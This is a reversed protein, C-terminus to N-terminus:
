QLARVDLTGSLRIAQTMNYSTDGPQLRNLFWLGLQALSLPLDQDRSAPEIFTRSSRVIAAAENLFVLIEEKREALEERIEPTLMGEPADYRLRGDDAWIKIDLERLHSLFEGVTM